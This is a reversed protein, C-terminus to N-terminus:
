SVSGKSKVEALNQIFSLIFNVRLSPEKEFYGSERNLQYRVVKYHVFNFIEEM